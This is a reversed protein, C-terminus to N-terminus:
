RNGKVTMAHVHEVARAVRTEIQDWAGDAVLAPPAMWSGGVAPVAPHSLYESLQEARVGGTPVLGLQPFPASLARVGAPGGLLDAPFLKVTDLGLALARMAESPTAIGPLVPVDLDRCRQVVDDALGPSVVFSAGADVVADVQRAATVTGAGVLLGDTAAMEALAELAGPIRLTVEALALGGRLLAAGLRRGPEPGAVTLVPIIRHQVLLHSFDRVEGAPAPTV